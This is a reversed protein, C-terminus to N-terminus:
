ITCDAHFLIAGSSNASLEHSLTLIWRRRLSCSPNHPLTALTPVHGYTPTMIPISRKQPPTHMQQVGKGDCLCRERFLIRALNKEGDLVSGRSGTTGRQRM